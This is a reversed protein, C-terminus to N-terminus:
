SSASIYCVGVAAILIAVANHFNNGSKFLVTKIYIFDQGVHCSQFCTLRSRLLALRM